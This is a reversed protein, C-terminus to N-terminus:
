GSKVVLELRLKQRGVHCDRDADCVQFSLEVNVPHKGRKKATVQVTWRLSKRDEAYEADKKGFTQKKALLVEDGVEPVFKMEAAYDPDIFYENNAEVEIVVDDQSAVELEPAQARVTFRRTPDDDGAHAVAALVVALSFCLATLWRAM